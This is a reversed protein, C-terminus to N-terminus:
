ILGCGLNANCMVPKLFQNTIEKRAMCHRVRVRVAFAFM